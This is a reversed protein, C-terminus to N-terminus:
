FFFLLERQAEKSREFYLPVNSSSFSSSFNVGIKNGKKEKSADTVWSSRIHPTLLKSSLSGCIPVLLTSFLSCFAVPDGPVREWDRAREQGPGRRLCPVSWLGQCHPWTRGLHSPRMISLGEICVKMKSPNDVPGGAPFPGRWSTPSSGWEQFPPWLRWFELLVLSCASSENRPHSDTYGLGVARWFPGQGKQVLRM